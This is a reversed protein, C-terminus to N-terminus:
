KREPNRSVLCLFLETITAKEGGFRDRKM